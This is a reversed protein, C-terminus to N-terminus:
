TLVKKSSKSVDWVTINVKMRSSVSRVYLSIAIYSVTSLPHKVLYSLITRILLLRPLKFENDVSDADFHHKLAINGKQFRASQRVHDDIHTPSRFYVTAARCFKFDFGLKRNFFYSYSDEPVHKPWHIKKYVAKTFARFRGHCLYVNNGKNKRIYINQKLEHAAALVWETFSSPPISATNGGVLGVDPNDLLCTCLREISYTNGPLVDANLLVLIDGKAKKVITNQTASQGERKKTSIVRIKSSKVSRALHVTNDTSGDSVVLIETIVVRRTKQALLYRLLLHINDKENYAPIGITVRARRRM